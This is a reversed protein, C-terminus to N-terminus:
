TKEAWGRGESLHDGYLTVRLDGLQFMFVSGAKPIVKVKNASTIIVFTNANERIVIGQVGVNNHIKAELVALVAGHLDMQLLSPEIMKGSNDEVLRKAYTKWMEHMPLFLEFRHYQLPLAKSGLLKHRRRSMHKKSRKGLSERAKRRAKEVAKGHGPPNDLLLVRSQIKSDLVGDIHRISKGSDQVLERLISDIAKGDNESTSLQLHTAVPGERVLNTLKAYTPDDSDGAPPKSLPSSFQRSAPYRLPTTHKFPPPSSLRRELAQLRSTKRASLPTEGGDGM